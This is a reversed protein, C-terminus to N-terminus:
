RMIVLMASVMDMDEMDEAKMSSETAQCMDVLKCSVMAQERNEVKGLLMDQEMDVKALVMDQEMDEVKASVM